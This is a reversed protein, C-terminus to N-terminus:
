HLEAVALGGGGGGSSKPEILCDGSGTEVRIVTHGSGRRAGYIARNRTKMQADLYGVLVEGSGQEAELDFSAEAGGLIRVDGSGTEVWMERTGVLSSRIVVDGSGTDGRFSEMEVGDLVINGSGTDVLLGRVSGGSLRIDGSGTEARFDGVELRTIEISGSGTAVSGAGILTSIRVDGSGTDVSCNARMDGLTVDGSGTDVSLKGRFSAIGVDGSGTCIELDGTLSGGRVSGAGNRFALADARPVTIRLDAFLVPAEDDQRTVISVREGLYDTTTRSDGWWAGQGSRPYAFSRYRDVPFALAWEARGKKDRTEVWKMAALLEATEEADRGAARITAEVLVQGRSATASGSLLEVSGALNALRLVGSAPIPVMQRLERKELPIGGAMVATAFGLSLAIALCSFSLARLSRNETM